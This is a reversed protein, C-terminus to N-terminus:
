FRMLVTELMEGRLTELIPVIVEMAKKREERPVRDLPELIPAIVQMATYREERPVRDLAKLLFRQDTGTLHALSPRDLMTDVSGFSLAADVLRACLEKREDSEARIVQINRHSLLWPDSQVDALNDSLSLLEDWHVGNRQLERFVVVPSKLRDVTMLIMRRLQLLQGVSDGAALLLADIETGSYDLKEKLEKRLVSRAQTISHVRQLLEQHEGEPCQLVLLTNQALFSDDGTFELLSLLSSWDQAKLKARRDETMGALARFAELQFETGFRSGGSEQALAFVPEIEKVAIQALEIYDESGNWKMHSLSAFGFRQSLPLKTFALTQIKFGIRVCLRKHEYSDGNM